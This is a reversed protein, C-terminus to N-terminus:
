TMETQLIDLGKKFYLFKYFYCTLPLTVFNNLDHAFRIKKFESWWLNFTTSNEVIVAARTVFTNYNEAEVTTRLQGRVASSYCGFTWADVYFIEM